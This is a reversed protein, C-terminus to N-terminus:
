KKRTPTLNFRVTRNRLSKSGVDPDTEDEDSEEDDNETENEENQLNNDADNDFLKNRIQENDLQEVDKELNENGLSKLAETYEDDEDDNDFSVQRDPVKDMNEADFLEVGDPIDFPDYKTIETFDLTIFDSFDNLM